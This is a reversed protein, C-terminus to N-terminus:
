MKITQEIQMKTQHTVVNGQLLPLSRCVYRM